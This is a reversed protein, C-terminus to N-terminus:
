FVEFRDGNETTYIIERGKMQRKLEGILFQADDGTRAAYANVMDRGSEMAFCRPISLGIQMLNRFRKERSVCGSQVVRDTDIFVAENREIDIFINCAKLDAHFIGSMHMMGITRGIMAALNGRETEALGGSHLLRDLQPYDLKRSILMSSRDRFVIFASPEAVRFGNFLLVLSGEWSRQAYPKFFAPTRKYSKVCYTGSISVQTKKQVKLLSSGERLNECHLNIIENLDLTEDRRVIAKYDGNNEIRSFSGESLSRRIHRAARKRRISGAMVSVAGLMSELEQPILTKLEPLTTGYVSAASAVSRISNSVSISNKGRVEYCDILVYNNSEDILINGPHLDHHEFGHELFDKVVSFLIREQFDREFSSLLRSNEVERVAIASCVGFRFHALVEAASIGSATLNELMDAERKTRPSILNNIKQFLGKPHYIKLYVGPYGDRRLHYVSRKSSTKVMEWSYGEFRSELERKFGEPIKGNETM